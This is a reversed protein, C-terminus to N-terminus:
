SGNTTKLSDAVRLVVALLLAVVLFAGGVLAAHWLLMYTEGIWPTVYGSWVPNNGNRLYYTRGYDPSLYPVALLRFYSWPIILSLGAITAWRVLWKVWRTM